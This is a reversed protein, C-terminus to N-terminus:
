RSVVDILEREPDPAVGWSWFREASEAGRRSIFFRGAKGVGDRRRKQKIDTKTLKMDKDKRPKHQLFRFRADRRFMESKACPGEM